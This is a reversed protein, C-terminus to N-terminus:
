QEETWTPSLLMWSTFVYFVSLDVPPLEALLGPKSGRGFSAAFCMKLLRTLSDGHSLNRLSFQRM